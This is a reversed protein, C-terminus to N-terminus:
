KLQIIKKGKIETEKTIREIHYYNDIKLNDNLFKLEIM